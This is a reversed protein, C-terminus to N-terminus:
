ETPKTPYRSKAGGVQGSKRALARDVFFSRKEAPISAGGKAAM